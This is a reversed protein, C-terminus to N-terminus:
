EKTGDEEGQKNEQKEVFEKYGELIKRFEEGIKTIEIDVERGKRNKKILGEKAWQDTVTSLHSITMGSITSLQKIRNYRQIMFFLDCYRKSM